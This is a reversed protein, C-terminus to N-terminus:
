FLKQLVQDKLSVLLLNFIIITFFLIEFPENPPRGSCVALYFFGFRKVEDLCELKCYIYLLGPRRQAHPFQTRKDM